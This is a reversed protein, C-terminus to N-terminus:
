GCECASMGSRISRIKLATLWVGTTGSTSPVNGQKHWTRGDDDSRFIPFGPAGFQQFTALWSRSEGLRVARAYAAGAGPDTVVVPGFPAEGPGKGLGPSAASAPGALGVSLGALTVAGAGLFARRSANVAEGSAAEGQRSDGSAGLQSQRRDQM